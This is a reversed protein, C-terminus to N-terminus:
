TKLSYFWFSVQLYYLYSRIQIKPFFFVFFFFLNKLPWIWSEPANNFLHVEITVKDHCTRVICHDSYFSRTAKGHWLFSQKLHEILLQEFLPTRLFCSDVILAVQVKINIFTLRTYKAFKMIISTTNATLTKIRITFTGIEKWCSAPHCKWEVHVPIHYSAQILRWFQTKLGGILATHLSFVLFVVESIWCYTLETKWYDKSESVPHIHAARLAGPVTSQNLLTHPLVSYFHLHVPSQKLVDCHLLNLNYRPWRGNEVRHAHILQKWEISYVDPELTQLKSRGCLM